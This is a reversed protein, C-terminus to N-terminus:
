LWRRIAALQRVTEPAPDDARNRRRAYRWEVRAIAKLVRRRGTQRLKGSHAEIVECAGRRIEDGAPGPPCQASLRLLQQLGEFLSIPPERTQGWHDVPSDARSGARWPDHARCWLVLGCDYCVIDGSCFPLDLPSTRWAVVHGCARHMVYALRGGLAPLWM